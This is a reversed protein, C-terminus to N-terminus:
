TYEYQGAEMPMFRVRFMTGDQSDCFGEVLSGGTHNLREFKGSVFVDTFPNKTTPTSVAIEIEVFDFVEISDASQSFSMDPLTSVQLKGPTDSSPNSCNSLLCLLLFLLRPRPSGFLGRSEFEKGSCRPRLM